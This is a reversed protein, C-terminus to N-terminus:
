YPTEGERKGGGKRSKHKGKGKDNGKGNAKDPGKGKGEDTGGFFGAVVGVLAAYRYGTGGPGLGSSITVLLDLIFLGGGRRALVVQRTDDHKVFFHSVTFGNFRIRWLANFLILM